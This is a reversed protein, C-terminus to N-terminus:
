LQMSIMGLNLTIGLGRSKSKTTMLIVGNSARSGYLATAAAGKLVTISEIDDSNIDAAASGYDYGGGGQIQRPKNTNANDIPVGDVIFLAQNNGTLSKTGRLVINTSGGLNNNRKINLGAIKGSLGNIVNNDRTNRIDSGDLKQASYPLENKNRSIGLATVVVEGLAKTDELLVIDIVNSAGVPIEQTIFGVYSILLTAQGSPVDLSYNGDLDTVNGNTTGKLIISAGLITAGREDSVKGKITRQQAWAISLNFVILILILLKKKM